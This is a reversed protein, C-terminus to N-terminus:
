KKSIKFFNLLIDFYCSSSNFDDDDLLFSLFFSFPHVKTTKTVFHTFHSTPFTLMSNLPPFPVCILLKYVVMGNYQNKQIITNTKAEKQKM